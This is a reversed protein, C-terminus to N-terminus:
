SADAVAETAEAAAEEAIEALAKRVEEEDVRLASAIVAVRQKRLGRATFVRGETESLPEEGDEALRNAVAATDAAISLTYDTYGSKHKMDRAM